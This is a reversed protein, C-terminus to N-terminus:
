QSSNQEIMSLWFYFYSEKRKRLLSTARPAQHNSWCLGMKVLVLGSLSNQPCDPLTATPSLWPYLWISYKSLVSVIVAATARWMLVFTTELCAFRSFIHFLMVGSAINGFDQDACVCCAFESCAICWLSSIRCDQINIVGLALLLCFKQGSFEFTLHICLLLNPLSVKVREMLLSLTWCLGHALILDMLIILVVQTISYFAVLRFHCDM